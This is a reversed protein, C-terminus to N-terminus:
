THKYKIILVCAPLKASIRIKQRGDNVSYTGHLFINWQVTKKRWWISLIERYQLFYKLTVRNVTNYPWLNTIFQYKKRWIETRVGVVGFIVIWKSISWPQNSYNIITENPNSHLDVTRAISGASPAHNFGLSSRM